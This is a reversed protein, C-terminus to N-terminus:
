FGNPDFSWLEMPTSLQVEPSRLLYVLGDQVYVGANRAMLSGPFDNKRVWNLNNMSMEWIQQSRNGLGIYIRDGIAIGIGGGSGFEGPYTSVTEWNESVPDYSVLQRNAPNIFYHQNQYTFNFLSNNISFPANQKKTWVGSIKNYQYVSVSDGVIGGAIYLNDSIEFAVANAEEFPLDPLKQYNGNEVKWFDRSLVFPARGLVLAGAGFYNKSSFAMFLPSGQFNSNQWTNSSLDYSFIWSVFNVGRDSGLGSYLKNGQQFHINDLIRENGPFNGIKNFKGITYEFLLPFTMENNQSVVKIVEVPSEAIAPIRVTIRSEFAIESVEAQRDGFFVKTDSTFNKGNIFILQGGSGNTPSYDFVTPELTNLSITNGFQIEGGIELYAKVFYNESIKLDGIEGIFRGPRDREGLSIILPKSFGEEEAIYFGHDAGTIRQTTIIRGLFRAKDGSVYLVEETILSPPSDIEEECSSFISVLLLLFSVIGVVRKNM